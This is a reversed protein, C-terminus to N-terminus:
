QGLVGFAAVTTGTGFYVKGDVVLPTIFQGAVASFHDRNGAETSNYLEKTLDTADYAFLIGPEYDLAWVIGNQNADSSVSPVTGNNGFIHASQTSPSTALLAQSVPYARLSLGSPGIFITNNFYVPSSFNAHGDGPLQQYVNNKSANYQGMKDRDVVYIVGDEGAVVALHRIINTSDVLDPLLLPGSSSFDKDTNDNALANSPAFYDVPSLLNSGSLRVFTNGYDNNSGPTNNGFTKGTSFYVDGSADSAPGSGGLWIGAGFANPILDTVSTQALTGADFAMVWASYPGCDGSHGSWVTYIKNGTELLAARESQVQPLFAVTGASSNGGTGPYTADVTTPGGFLEKGTTLDLAHLRHFYNGKNDTSMTVVYIANRARDIVPTATIGNPDINGCPLSSLPVATEGAGLAPTKWLITASSGNISDADVAYVTDKETAFYLVNKTGKGPVNLQSLYLIQGDIRSDVAFEGVKGFNASNVNSPTLVTERSNLGTRMVDNHYTVVDVAARSANTIGPSIESAARVTAAIVSSTTDSATFSSFGFNSLNADINDFFGVGPSGGSYTADTQVFQQVGNKYVTITSGNATASLVDGNVCSTSAENLQRWNGLAGDWRVLQLYGNASVSCNIEYGTIRNATITTRLRLEVEHCCSTGLSPNVYVTGQVTQNAGWTGSLVATPDNCSASNDPCGSSMGSGFVHGPTTRVNLWGAVGGNIWKGSESIPNETLPFNTTYFNGTTATVTLADNPSVVGGLTATIQSTGATVGTALGTSTGITAVANNSSAWTVTTTINKTSGDSYTGTATFQQTKSPSISPNSPTVAISQLTAATVTLTDNPSVVSGLTATIQSTGATIGTALGTSTGITAVANNSSAWTVTTTINKTSGDSYTGTATFQQTKSPSISPNSPTVAISQLTAATVTLAGGPSVVSGLTATIQSTGATMGTALGTSTGITAVANNSSAWTVTTTINKTSGDSYTGTATFQQTKSPSISPNSPTVAISQLTAATVTLAGGPSVVSGLTATIQSTGATMGTALGTSTGITAVANNSSAWTVTTTINKTSGDSYTGTATFQQTKSPSISPNSPTVAISQLTAATVTLAGGPSVVSGLTATIQSTGATVGTALGTSTGITAVANNSSAWTVTTTINKTSGDSYTGTATFQQTKSPSISPNSPTVAISQLTAATVTLAGGPSVVSGLTATIQSTGATVGTALGTSTGITAVANNSSAWTVTTTINKTSGDSYTGTATFQQTKSPSISPNSPTVAISQLTAATVTLAGGPSVVSGLTATIQSTGATVGTALGTSTGITAVANNSSAWTVTTTINKTSGDSYTGTATFQQTQSPSISPNFPTVAISQLTANPSPSPM